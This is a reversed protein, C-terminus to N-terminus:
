PPIGPMPCQAQVFGVRNALSSDQKLKLVSQGNHQIILYSIGAQTRQYLMMPGPASADCALGGSAWTHPGAPVPDGDVMACDIAIGSDTIVGIVPGAAYYPYQEIWRNVHITMGDSYTQVHIFGNWRSAPCSWAPGGSSRADGFATVFAM